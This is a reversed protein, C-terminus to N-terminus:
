WYQINMIFSVGLGFSKTLIREGPPMKSILNDHMTTSGAYLINVDPRVVNYFADAFAWRQFGYTMLMVTMDGLWWSKPHDAWHITLAVTPIMLAYGSAQLLHGYQIQKLNDDRKGLDYLADGTMECAIAATTGIMNVATAKWNIKQSWINLCIVLLALITITKKM